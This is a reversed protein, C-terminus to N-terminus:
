KRGMMSLLSGLLASGDNQANPADTNTIGGLLTGLLSNGNNAPKSGGSQFIGMLDSVDLGDSLDVGHSQNQQASSVANTAASLSSLLSPAMSALVASVDQASAGSKQAIEGIVNEQNDGLIHGIIKAGDETDAEKIQEPMSKKSTHQGLAGLLSQAGADSSANNTMNRMLLPLAYSLITLISVGKIGTKQEAADISSQQTM